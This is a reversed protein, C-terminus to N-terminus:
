KLISGPDYLARAVYRNPYIWSRAGIIAGPAIVCNCGTETYDGIIAGAKRLRKSEVPTQIPALEGRDILEKSRFNINALRTGAGLNVRSGVIADGIYAFHGAASHDMVISNKLETAHGIVVDAGVIANGRIYAGHRIESGRGILAPTKILAGYELSVGAEIYLGLSPAILPESLITSRAVRLEASRNSSAPDPASDLSGWEDIPLTSQAPGLAIAHRTADSDLRACFDFITERIPFDWLVPHFRRLLKKFRFENNDLFLDDFLM